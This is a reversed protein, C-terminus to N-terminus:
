IPTKWSVNEKKRLVSFFFLITSSRLSFKKINIRIKKLQVYINSLWKLFYLIMTELYFSKKLFCLKNWYNTVYMKTVYSSRINLITVYSNRILIMDFNQSVEICRVFGKLLLAKLNKHIGSFCMYLMIVVKIACLLEKHVLNRLFVDLGRGFKLFGTLKLKNFCKIYQQLLRYTICYSYKM